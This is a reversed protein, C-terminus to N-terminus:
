FRYGAGVEITSLRSKLLRGNPHRLINVMGQEHYAQLRLFTNSSFIPYCLAAKFTYGFDVTKYDSIKREPQLARADINSSFRLYALIGGWCGAGLQLQLKQGARFQLYLPAEINWFVYKNQVTFTKNSFSDYLVSDRTFGKTKWHIGSVLAFHPSFNWAIEQTSHQRLLPQVSIGKGVYHNYSLSHALLVSFKEEQGFCRGTAILLVCFLLQSCRM